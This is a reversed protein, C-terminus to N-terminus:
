KDFRLPKPLAKRTTIELSIGGIALARERVSKLYQPSHHSTLNGASTASPNKSKQDVNM